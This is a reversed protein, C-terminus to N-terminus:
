PNIEAQYKILRIVSIVLLFLMLIASIVCFPCIKELVSIEIYTLYVSYITGALTTGFVILPSNQTFFPFRDELMLIIIIFLYAAAGITATPIGFLSAYSSTNVSWCDGLGKICLAENHSIKIWTLYLADLFGLTSGILLLYRFRTGSFIMIEKTQEWTTM